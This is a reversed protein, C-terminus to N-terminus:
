LIGKWIDEITLIGNKTFIVNVKRRKMELIADYIPVNEDLFIPERIIDEVDMEDLKLLDKKYIYGVIQNNKRVLILYSKPSSITKIKEYDFIEFESFARVFKVIPQELYNLSKNLIIKENQNIFKARELEDLYFKLIDEPKKPSFAKLILNIPFILYYSITIISSFLKLIIEPNSRAVLRPVYESILVFVITSIIGSILASLHEPLFTKFFNFNLIAYSIAFLNVGLLITFLIGAPNEIYFKRKTLKYITPYSLSLYAIEFAVFSFGLFLVVFSLIIYIIM